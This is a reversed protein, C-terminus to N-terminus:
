TKNKNIIILLKKPTAKKGSDMSDLVQVNQCLVGAVVVVYSCWNQVHGFKTNLTVNFKMQEVLSDSYM